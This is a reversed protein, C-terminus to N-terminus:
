GSVPRVNRYTGSRGWQGIQMEMDTSWLKWPQASSIFVEVLKWKNAPLLVKAKTESPSAPLAVNLSGPYAGAGFNLTLSLPATSAYAVNMIRVHGWGEMGLSSMLAHYSLRDYVDDDMLAISPQWVDLATRAGVPWQFITGLDRTYLGETNNFDLIIAHRGQTVSDNVAIQGDPVTQTYLAYTPTITLKLPTIVPM